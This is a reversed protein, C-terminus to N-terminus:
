EGRGCSNAAALCEKLERDFWLGLRRVECTQRTATLNASLRYDPRGDADIDLQNALVDSTPDDTERTLCRGVKVKEGFRLLLPKRRDRDFALMFRDNLVLNLGYASALLLAATAALWAGRRGPAVEQRGQGM